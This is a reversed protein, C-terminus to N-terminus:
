FVFEGKLSKLWPLQDILGLKEIVKALINAEKVKTM